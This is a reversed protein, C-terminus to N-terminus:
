QDIIQRLTEDEACLTHYIQQKVKEPLLDIYAKQYRIRESLLYNFVDSSTELQDIRADHYPNQINTTLKIV